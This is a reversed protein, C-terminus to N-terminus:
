ANMAESRDTLQSACPHELASGHCEAIQEPSCDQPKDTLNEPKQCQNKEDCCMIRNRKGPGSPGEATLPPRGCLLRKL